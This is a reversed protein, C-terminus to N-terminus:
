VQVGSRLVAPQTSVLWIERELDDQRRQRLRKRQYWGAPGAVAVAILFDWVPEPAPSVPPVYSSSWSSALPQNTFIVNSQCGYNAAACLENYLSDDSPSLGWPLGGLNEDNNSSTLMAVGGLGSDSFVAWDSFAGTSDTIVDLYFDQGPGGSSLTVGGATMSWSNIAAASVVGNYNAGLATFLDISAGISDPRLQNCSLGNFTGVGCSYGLTNFTQGSYLYIEDARAATTTALLLGGIIAAARFIYSLQM